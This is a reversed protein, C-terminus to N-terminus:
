KVAPEEFHRTFINDSLLSEISEFGLQKLVELVNPNDLPTEFASAKGYLNVYCRGDEPNILVKPGGACGGLCGMGELYNATISGEQLKQLLERCSKTGDAQEARVNIFRHPNLRHVTDRVAESVGGTRGYIRGAKSSHEKEDEGLQEIDIHFADFVDRVEEFTLVFDVAGAVDKERAEVKKAICPGIFVTVANPELRKVARGCAVMPSVSDPIKSMYRSYGRRVMAIWIPCCCSTLMFDADTKIKKDFILAEKLTLIDAFLAVEVMGAFGIAKFASRLQGVSVDGFQGVIAPAVLAYVPSGSNKLAELVPLVDRSATLKGSACAEVCEACGVCRDQDIVLEGNANREIANYICRSVCEPTGDGGCDCPETKWVPAYKGPHLLCDIAASDRHTRLTRQYLGENKESASKLLETYLDNFTMSGGSKLSIIIVNYGAQRLIIGTQHKSRNRFNFAFLLACARRKM